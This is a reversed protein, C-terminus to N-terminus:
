VKLQDRLMALFTPFEIGQKRAAKMRALLEELAAIVADMTSEVGHFTIYRIADLVATLKQLRKPKGSPAISKAAEYAAKLGIEGAALRDQVEAPADLVALLKSVSAKSKGIREAVDAATANTENMLQRIARAQDLPSLDERVCNAVLQRQTVMGADFTGDLVLAPVVALGLAISARIRREGDLAILQIGERRLLVPQLIGVARISAVMEEHAGADFETRVQKPCLITKPDVSQILTNSM